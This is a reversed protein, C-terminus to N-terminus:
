TTPAPPMRKEVVEWIADGIQNDFNRVFYAHPNDRFIPWDVVPFDGGELEYLDISRLICWINRWRDRESGKLTRM